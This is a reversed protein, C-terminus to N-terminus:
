AQGAGGGKASPLVHQRCVHPSHGFLNCKRCKHPFCSPSHPCNQCPSKTAVYPFTKGLSSQVYRERSRSVEGKYTGTAYQLDSKDEAAHATELINPKPTDKPKPDKPEKPTTSSFQKAKMMIETIHNVIVSYYPMGPYAESRVPREPDSERAQVERLVTQLCETRAKSSAPLGKLLAVVFLMDGTLHKSLNMDNYQKVMPAISTILAGPNSEAEELSV